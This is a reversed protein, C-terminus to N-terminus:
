TRAPITVLWGPEMAADGVRRALSSTMQDTSRRQGLRKVARVGPAGVYRRPSPSRCIAAAVAGPRRMAGVCTPHSHRYSRRTKQSPAPGTSAKLQPASSTIFQPHNLGLCSPHLRGAYVLPAIGRAAKLANYNRVRDHLRLTDADPGDFPCYFLGHLATSRRLM